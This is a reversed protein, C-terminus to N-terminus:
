YAYLSHILFIKPSILWYEWLSPASVVAQMVCQMSFKIKGAVLPFSGPHAHFPIHQVPIAETMSSHHNTDLSNMRQTESLSLKLTFLNTYSILWNTVITYGQSSVDAMNSLSAVQKWNLHVTLVISCGYKGSELVTHDYKEKHMRVPLLRM